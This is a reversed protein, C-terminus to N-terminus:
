QNTLHFNTQYNTNWALITYSGPTGNATFPPAEAYGGADTVVIVSLGGNPFTGGVGQQPANFTISHGELAIGNKNFFVKMPTPFATNVSTTQHDGSVIDVRPSLQEPSQTYGNAGSCGIAALITGLATATLARSNIRQVM